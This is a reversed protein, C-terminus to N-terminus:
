RNPLPQKNRESEQYQKLFNSALHRALSELIKHDAKVVLQPNLYLQLNYGSHQIALMAEDVRQVEILKFVQCIIKSDPVPVPWDSYQWAHKPEEVIVTQLTVTKPSPSFPLSRLRKIEKILNRRSMKSM